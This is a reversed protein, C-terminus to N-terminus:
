AVQTPPDPGRYLLDAPARSYPNRVPRRHPDIWPPPLFEPHRDDGLRVTWGGQHIETHHRGCLLVLNDLRTAGGDVWPTIHHCSTWGPPRDCGPFACCRDRAVVARRLGPTVLRNERGVDLPVGAPDLLVRAIGSDCALRRLTAASLPDGWETEAAPAGPTQRLTDISATVTLHPRVGGTAPLDGAALIREVLEVLADARRRAPSRPDRAAGAAGTTGAAGYGGAPVDSGETNGSGGNGSGSEVGGAGSAVPDPRPVPRPAALSDLATRLLATAENDLIGRIRHTGDGRDILWLERRQVAHRERGALDEPDLIHRLHAGLRSLEVPGFGAAHELLADETERVTRAPTAAPLDTVARHIARAQDYSVAGATLAAGTAGLDGDLAAALEVRARADGPRLRLRDRMLAATSTAGLRPGLTRKDAERVLRLGVAAVQAALRESAELLAVLDEDPLTWVAAESAQAVAASAAELAAAAELAVAAEPAAATESADAEPRV